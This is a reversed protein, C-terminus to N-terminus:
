SENSTPQGERHTDGFGRGKLVVMGEKKGIWRAKPRLLNKRRWRATSLKTTLSRSFASPLAAVYLCAAVSAWIALLLIIAVTCRGCRKVVSEEKRWGWHRGIGGDGQAGLGLGVGSLTVAVMLLETLEQSDETSPTPSPRRLVLLTLVFVAISALGSPYLILNSLISTIACIIGTVFPFIFSQSLRVIDGSFSLRPSSSRRSPPPFSDSRHPPTPFPNFDVLTSPPQMRQRSLRPYPDSEIASTKPSPSRPARQLPPVILKQSPLWFCVCFTVQLAISCRCFGTRREVRSREVSALKTPSVIWVFRATQLM